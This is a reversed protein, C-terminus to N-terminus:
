AVRALTEAAPRWNEGPESPGIPTTPNRDIRILEAPVHCVGEEIQDETLTKFHSPQLWLQPLNPGFRRPHRGGKACALAAPGRGHVEAARFRFEYRRLAFKVPDLRGSGAGSPDM